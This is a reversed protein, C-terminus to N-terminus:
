CAADRAARQTGCTANWVNCVACVASHGALRTTTTYAVVQAAEGRTAPRTIYNPIIVTNQSNELRSEQTGRAVRQKGYTANWVNCVACVASHGALRSTNHSTYPVTPPLKSVYKTLSLNKQIVFSLRNENFRHPLWQGCVKPQSGRKANSTARQGAGWRAPTNQVFQM